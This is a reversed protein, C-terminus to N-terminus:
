MEMRFAKKLIFRISFVAVFMGIQNWTSLEITKLLTADIKFELGAFAGTAALGRAQELSADSVLVAVSRLLYIVIIIAGIAEVLTTGM